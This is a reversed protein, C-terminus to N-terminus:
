VKRFTWFVGGGTRVGPGPYKPSEPKFYWEFVRFIKKASRAFVVLILLKGKFVRLIKTASRAIKRILIM